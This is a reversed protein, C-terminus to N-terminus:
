CWFIWTEQLTVSQWRALLYRNKLPKYRRWFRATVLSAVQRWMQSCSFRWCCWQCSASDRNEQLLLYM